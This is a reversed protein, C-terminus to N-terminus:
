LKPAGVCCCAFAGRGWAAHADGLRLELLPAHAHASEIWALPLESGIGVAVCSRVRQLNGEVLGAGFGLDIQPQAKTARHGAAYHIAATLGHSSGNDLKLWRRAAARHCHEPRQEGGLGCGVVSALPCNAHWCTVGPDKTSRM